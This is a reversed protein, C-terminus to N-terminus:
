YFLKEKLNEWELAGSKASEYVIQKYPLRYITKYYYNEQGFGWYAIRFNLYDGEVESELILTPESKLMGFLAKISSESHFRKSEWAGALLETPRVPSHLSYHKNLFDRLGEALM